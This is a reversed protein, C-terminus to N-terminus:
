VNHAVFLLFADCAEFFEECAQETGLTPRYRWEVRWRRCVNFDEGIESLRHESQTYELLIDLSHTRLDVQKQLRDSLERELDQLHFASFREMLRAKLSCEVAYGLMYMSGWWRKAGRLAEADDRRHISAKRQETVGAYRYPM